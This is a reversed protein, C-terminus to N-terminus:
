LILVIRIMCTRRQLMIDVSEVTYKMVFRQEILEVDFRNPVLEDALAVRVFRIRLLSNDTKEETSTISTSPCRLSLAVM